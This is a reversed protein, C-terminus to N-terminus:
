VKAKSPLSHDAEAGTLKGWPLTGPVRKGHPQTPGMAPILTITFLFIKAGAPFRVGTTWGAAQHNVYKLEL